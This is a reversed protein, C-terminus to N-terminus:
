FHKLNISCVMGDKKMDELISDDHPNDGVMTMKTIGNEETLSFEVLAEIIEEGSMGYHSSPM